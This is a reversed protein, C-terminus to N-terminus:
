GRPVVYGLTTGCNLRPLCGRMGSGYKGPTTGYYVKYGAIDPEKNSDWTLNIKGIGEGSSFGGGSCGGSGFAILLHMIVLFIYLKQRCQLM